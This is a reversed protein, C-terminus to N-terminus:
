GELVVWYALVDEDLEETRGHDAALVFVEVTIIQDEIYAQHVIQDLNDILLDRCDKLILPINIKAMRVNSATNRGDKIGDIGFNLRRTMRDQVQGQVTEYRCVRFVLSM